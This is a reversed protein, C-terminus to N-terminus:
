RGKGKPQGARQRQMDEMKKQLKQQFSSPGKDPRKKNEDIIARLKKEDVMRRIVFMQVFTIINALTYYYSLGASFKNLFPLFMLPMFYMMYKMGPMQQNQAGSMLQSNLHTYILTTITCLLAWISVHDGYIFDIVPLKGFEWVSDYTSLDDVWWFGQQRLEISSPFFRFLAILIPMQLLAPICGALPNVGAKRYLAMLAQQKKMPDENGYKANIDDMEPKLVRMKASSTYTKYAIPLLLTKFVLTLCLIIIAYNLNFSDLYNFVPIVLFKNVWGFIGWGLPIVKELSIDFSKLTQFHNPGLYYRMGFTESEKHSYPISLNSQYSKVFRSQEPNANFSSIDAGTKDFSEDAILTANFFQQKFSIWKISADLTKSEDSMESIYDPEENLYKFYVTSAQQQTGVHKEQSPTAVSWRLALDGQNSAIVQNLGHVTVKYNAMYSGPSLSYHFEIYQNSIGASDPNAYLRLKLESSSSSASRFYLENTHIVRNNETYFSLGFATSDPDFLDLATSDYRRYEKLLASRIFGGKSSIKLRLKDNELTYFENKGESAAAFVDFKSNRAAKATSDAKLSDMGTTQVLAPREEKKQNVKISDALRQEKEVLALSDKAKKMQAMEEASPAKYWMWLIMIGIIAVIGIISNRDM